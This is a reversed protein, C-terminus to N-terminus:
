ITAQLLRFRNRGRSQSQALADQAQSLLHDADVPHDRDCFAGGVSVNLNVTSGDALQLPSDTLFSQLAEGYRGADKLNLGTATCAFQGQGDSYLWSQVSANKKLISAIAQWTLQVQADVPAITQKDARETHLLFLCVSRRQGDGHTDHRMRSLLSAIAKPLTKQHLLGTTEDMLSLALLLDEYSHRVEDVRALQTHTAQQQSQIQETLSETQHKLRANSWGRRLIAPISFLLGIVVGIALTALLVLSLSEQLQWVFLNITVSNFNQLAFSIALLAIALAFVLYLRM